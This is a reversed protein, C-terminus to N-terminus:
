LVQLKSRPTPAEPLDSHSTPNAPMLSGPLPALLGQRPSLRIGCLSRLSAGAKLSMFLHLRFPLDSLLLHASYTGGALPAFGALVVKVQCVTRFICGLQRSRAAIIAAAVRHRSLM